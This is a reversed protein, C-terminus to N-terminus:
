DDGMEEILKDGDEISLFDLCYGMVYVTDPKEKKAVCETLKGKINWFCTQCMINDETYVIVSDKYDELFDSNSYINIEKIEKHEPPKKTM